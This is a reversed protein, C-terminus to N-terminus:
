REGEPPEDCSTVANRRELDQALALAQHLKYTFELLRERLVRERETADITQM